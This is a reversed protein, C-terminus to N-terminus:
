FYGYPRPYPKQPKTKCYKSTGRKVVEEVAECAKKVELYLEQESEKTGRLNNTLMQMFCSLKGSVEKWREYQSIRHYYDDWEKMERTKSPRTM